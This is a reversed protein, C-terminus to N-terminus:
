LVPEVVSIVRQSWGKKEVVLRRLLSAAGNKWHWHQETM